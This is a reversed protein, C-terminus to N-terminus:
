VLCPEDTKTLAGKYGKGSGTIYLIPAEEAQKHILSSGIYAKSSSIPRIKPVESIPSVPSNFRDMEVLNVNM